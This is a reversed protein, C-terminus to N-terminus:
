RGLAKSSPPLALFPRRHRQALTLIAKRQLTTLLLFHSQLALALPFDAVSGPFISGQISGAGTLAIGHSYAYGEKPYEGAGMAMIM